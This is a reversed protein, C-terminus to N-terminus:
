RQEVTPTTEKLIAGGKDVPWSTESMHTSMHPYFHELNFAMVM